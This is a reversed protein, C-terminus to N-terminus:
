SAAEEQDHDPLPSETWEDGQLEPKSYDLLHQWHAEIDERYFAAAIDRTEPQQYSARAEDRASDVDTDIMPCYSPYRATEADDRCAQFGCRACRLETM